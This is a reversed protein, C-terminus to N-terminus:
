PSNAQNLLFGFDIKSLVEVHFPSLSLFFQTPDFAFGLKFQQFIRTALSLVYVLQLSLSQQDYIRTEFREVNMALLKTAGIGKNQLSSCNHINAFAVHKGVEEEEGFRDRFLISSIM